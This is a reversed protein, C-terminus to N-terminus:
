SYKKVGKMSEIDHKAGQIIERRRFKKFTEKIKEKMNFAKGLDRM